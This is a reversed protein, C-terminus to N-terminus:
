FVVQILEKWMRPVCEYKKNYFALVINEVTKLRQEDKGSLEGEIIYNFASMTLGTLSLIVSM